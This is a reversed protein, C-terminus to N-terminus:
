FNYQAQYAELQERAPFQQEAGPSIQLTRLIYLMNDLFHRGDATAATVNPTTKLAMWILTSYLSGFSHRTGKGSLVEIEPPEDSIGLGRDVRHVISPLGEALLGSTQKSMEQIHQVLATQATADLVYAVITDNREIAGPGCIKISAIGPIEAMWGVAAEIIKLGTDITQCHAYVRKTAGGAGIIHYFTRWLDRGSIAIATSTLGEFDKIGLIEQVYTGRGSGIRKISVVFPELEARNYPRVRANPGSYLGYIQGVGTRSDQLNFGTRANWATKLFAGLEPGFDSLRTEFSRGASQDIQSV